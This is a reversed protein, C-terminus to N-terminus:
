KQALTSREAAKASAIAQYKIMASRSIRYICQNDIAGYHAGPLMGTAREPACAAVAADHIRAALQDSTEAQAATVTLALFAVTTILRTM